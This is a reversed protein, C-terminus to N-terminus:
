FHLVIISFPQCILKHHAMLSINTVTMELCNKLSVIDPSDHDVNGPHHARISGSVVIRTEESDQSDKVNRFQDGLPVDHAIKTRVSGFRTHYIVSMSRIVLM